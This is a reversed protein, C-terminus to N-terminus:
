AREPVRILNLGTAPDKLRRLHAPTETVVVELTPRVHARVLHGAVASGDRRGLVLHVHLSPKGEGDLAIDGLMTAVEAQEAVPIESYQKQEWDFYALVADSLAGIASLSAASLGEQSALRRLSDMVEDGSDLVAVFTREGARDNLLRAKM